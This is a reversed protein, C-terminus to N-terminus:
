CSSGPKADQTGAEQRALERLYDYTYLGSAHGDSFILRLAYLGCAEIAQIEVDEKGVPIQGGVGGHGQVEASPSHVRLFTASIRHLTSADRLELRRQQRLYRIEQPAENM